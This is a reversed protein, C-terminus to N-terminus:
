AYNIVKKDLSEIYEDGKDTSWWHLGAKSAYGLRELRRAAAVYHVQRNGSGFSGSKARCRKCSAAYRNANGARTTM